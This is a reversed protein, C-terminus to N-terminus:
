APAPHGALDAERADLAVAHLQGFLVHVCREVVVRGEHEGRFDDTRGDGVVGPDDAFADVQAQDVALIQARGRQDVMEGLRQQFVVPAVRFLLGLEVQEALELPDRAAPQVIVQDALAAGVGGLEHVLLQRILGAGADRAADHRAMEALAGDGRHEVRVVRGARRDM